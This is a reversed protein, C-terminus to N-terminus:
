PSQDFIQPKSSNDSQEESDSDSLMARVMWKAAQDPSREVIKTLIIAGDEDNLESSTKRKRFKRLSFVLGWLAFGLVLYAGREVWLILNETSSAEMTKTLPTLSLRASPCLDGLLGLVERRLKLNPDFEQAEYSGDIKCAGDKESVSVSKWQVDKSWGALLRDWIENEQATIQFYQKAQASDDTWEFGEEDRIVAQVVLNKESLSSSVLNSISKYENQTLRKRKKLNLIVEVSLIQAENVGWLSEARSIENRPVVVKSSSVSRFSNLNSEIKEELIRQDSIKSGSFGNFLGGFNMEGAFSNSISGAVAIVVCSKLIYLKVVGIHRV